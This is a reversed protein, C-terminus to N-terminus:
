RCEFRNTRSAVAFDFLRCHGCGRSHIEASRYMGALDLGCNKVFILRLIKPIKKFLFKVKSINPVYKQKLQQYLDNYAEVSVLSLSEMRIDDTEDDMEAM